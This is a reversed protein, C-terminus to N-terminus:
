VKEEVSKLKQEMSADKDRRDDIRITTSVRMAGSIFPVEHMKRIMHFIPDLDGELISGMPTLLSKISKEEELIKHCDAVYKSVSTNGTGIPIIALEVIAM